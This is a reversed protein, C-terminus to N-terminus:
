WVGKEKMMRRVGNLKFLEKHQSTPLCVLGAAHTIESYGEAELVANIQALRLGERHLEGYRLVRHTEEITGPSMVCANVARQFESIRM